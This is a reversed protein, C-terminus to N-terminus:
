RGTSGFGGKRDTDVNKEFENWEILHMNVKPLRCFVMQAIKDGRLLMFPENNLNKIIIKIEDRYDSDITGPSNLVIIGKKAMSSRSRIQCEYHNPIQMYMGTPVLVIESPMIELDEICYIDYGASGYTGKKPCFGTNLFIKVEVRFELM